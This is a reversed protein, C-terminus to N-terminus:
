GERGPPGRYASHHTSSRQRRDPRRCAYEGGKPGTQCRLLPLFLSEGSLSFGSQHLNRVPQHPLHQQEQQQRVPSTKQSSVTSMVKPTLIVDCVPGDYQGRPVGRLETLQFSSLDPGAKMVTVALAPCSSLHVPAAPCTGGDVLPSVPGPNDPDPLPCTGTTHPPASCCKSSVTSRAKIRKYVYDSFPKRTVYRGCGETTHLAGDEFVVKGQSIVVAPGGRM